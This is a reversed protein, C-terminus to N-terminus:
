ILISWKNKIIDVIKQYLNDEGRGTFINKANNSLKRSLTENNILENIKSVAEKEDCAVIAIGSNNIEQLDVKDKEGYPSFVVISVGYRLLEFFSVGFVTIAFKANLMLSDLNKPAQILNWNNIQVNEMNPQNSFPGVVWNINLRNEQIKKDLFEPFHVGLNTSDSGGTLVLLNENKLDYKLPEYLSNILFNQWGWSIKNSNINEFTKHKSFTPMFFFDIEDVFSLLSDISITIGNNIQIKHLVDLFTPPILMEKIDFLFIQLNSKKLVKNNIYVGLDYNLNIFIPIITDHNISKITDGYIYFNIDCKFNRKLGKYVVLMRNLHGLGISKGASCFLNIEM